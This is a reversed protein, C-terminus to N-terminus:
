KGNSVILFTFTNLDVPAAEGKINGAVLRAEYEAPPLHSLVFRNEALVTEDAQTTLEEQVCSNLWSDSGM